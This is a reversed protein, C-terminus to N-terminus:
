FEFSHSFPGDSVLQLGQRNGYTGFLVQRRRLTSEDITTSSPLPAFCGNADREAAAADGLLLASSLEGVFLQYLRLGEDKEIQQHYQVVKGKAKGALTAQPVVLVDGFPTEALANPKARPGGQAKTEEDAVRDVNLLFIKTTVLSSVATKVTEDTCGKLFALYFVVGAGISVYRSVNDVLLQASTVHQAVVRLSM